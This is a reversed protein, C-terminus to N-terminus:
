IRRLRAPEAARELALTLRLRRPPARLRRHEVYAIKDAPVMVQGGKEDTCSSSAARPRVAAALAAEIEEYSTTPRWSWSRPDRSQIGIKVEM